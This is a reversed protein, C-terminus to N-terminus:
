GEDLWAMEVGLFRSEGHWHPVTVGPLLCFQAPPAFRQLFGSALYGLQM